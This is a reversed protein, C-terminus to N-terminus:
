VRLGLGVRTKGTVPSPLPSGGRLILLLIVILFLVLLLILLLILVWVAEGRWPEVARPVWCLRSRAGTKAGFRGLSGEALILKCHTNDLSM